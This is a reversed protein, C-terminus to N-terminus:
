AMKKEAGPMRGQFSQWAFIEAVEDGSLQRRRLLEEAIEELVSRHKGVISKARKFERSLVNDVRRRLDPIRRLQAPVDDETMGVLYTLHEGLGFSAEMLLADVTARHLDAGERGGGGASRSGLIVEEAALGGLQMAIRNLLNSKTMEPFASESFCMGGGSQLADGGLELSKAISVHELQGIELVHRVVAHGSEHVAYRWLLKEPLAIRKPLGAVLDAVTM